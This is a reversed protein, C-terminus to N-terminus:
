PADAGRYVTSWAAAIAGEFLSLQRQERIRRFCARLAAPHALMDSTISQQPHIGAAEQPARM